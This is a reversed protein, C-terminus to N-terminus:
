NLLDRLRQRQEELTENRLIQQQRIISRLIELAENFSEMSAMKDRIAAMKLLTADFQTLIKRREEMALPRNPLERESLMQNLGTLLEDIGPFDTHILEQMPQMIDQDIRRREDETFIRNNVMEARILRFSEVINTLDYVEKHTDRFMRSIHFKGLDSQELNITDLITQKRTDLEQQRQALSEETEDDEHPELTLAAAQEVQQEPPELSYDFMISKTREVEGIVIEFRQRLTIERTELLNKLQEPTVIELQWRSGTGTQGTSHDLDFADSAEIHLALKDGPLASLPFVTFTQTFPFVTQGSTLGTMPATGETPERPTETEEAPAAPETTYRIVALALGNDDTIEGVIPLVAEPTIAPGIGELRATVVPPQDRIIGLEARIPHRNILADMDTLRFDMTTEERLAPLTLEITDFPENPIPTLSTETENIIVAAHILPKTSKATITIATGDPIMTRGSLTVVRESRQMYAPFHQTLAMETLTPTPVVEILLGSLTSDAGRIHLHVTELMEPFTTSFIRWRAGERTERRFQDLLWTRYGSEPTGVRVRITEPVLPMDESARISLTFSDGRGIRVKGDQFGDVLLESRRPYEQESLLINRSFWLSFTESHYACAGATLAVCLLAFTFRSFVRGVRFFRHVNVGRLLVAAEDITQQMFQREFDTDSDADSGSKEAAPCEVATMEVATVLAENLRPVYHELLTALQDRRIAALSRRIIRKWLVYLITGTFVPLLLLRVILPFEFFRDLAFNLLFLLIVTLLLAAIGDLAAYFRLSRGLRDLKRRVIIPLRPSPSM